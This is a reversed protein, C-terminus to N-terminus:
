FTGLFRGKLPRKPKLGSSNHAKLRFNVPPKGKPLLGAGPKEQKAREIKKDNGNVLLSFKKACLSM